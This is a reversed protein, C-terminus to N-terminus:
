TSFWYKHLNNYYIINYLICFLNCYQHLILSKLPTIHRLYYYSLIFTYINQSISLRINQLNEKKCNFYNIIHALSFSISIIIQILTIDYTLYHLFENLYVVFCVEEIFVSTLSLKILNVIQDKNKWINQMNQLLVFNNNIIINSYTTFIIMILHLNIIDKIM